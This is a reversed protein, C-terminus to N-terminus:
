FIKVLGLILGFIMKAPTAYTQFWGLNVHTAKSKETKRKLLEIQAKIEEMEQKAKRGM